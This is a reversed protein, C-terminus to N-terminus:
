CHTEVAVNEFPAYHRSIIHHVHAIVAAEFAVDGFDAELWMDNEAFNAAFTYEKVDFRRLEASISAIDIRVFRQGPKANKQIVRCSSDHHVSVKPNPYNVYAKLM